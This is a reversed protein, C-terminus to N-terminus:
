VESHIDLWPMPSCYISSVAQLSICFFFFSFIGEVGIGFHYCATTARAHLHLVITSVPGPQICKVHAISWSLTLKELFIVHKILM